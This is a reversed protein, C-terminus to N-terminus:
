PTPGPGQSGAPPVPGLTKSPGPPAFQAIDLDPMTPTRAKLRALDIMDTLDNANADRYTMAPLNWKREVMALISTHDRLSSSVGAPVAYPSLVMAPVRMGYRWFGDYTSQGPKVVPPIADPALAPPPAVHDYYGGHEDYTLILMTTPWQPSSFLADVIAYLYAEGASMDQPDEESQTGFNPDLLSFAPLKGARCDDFFTSKPTTPNSPFSSTSSGDMPEYHLQTVVADDLPYLEATTGLPYSATYDRWPIRLATLRDFITGNAPTALLGDQELTATPVGSSLSGASPVAIDDTMGASTAAILFRRNPDTQGLLSCFWRDAIPFTSALSYTFPLLSSDYYGMAVPGSPSVVFGNMAGKAYQMHSATWEQSPKGDLQGTGPMLFSFQLDAGPSASVPNAATVGYPNFATVFGSSCSLGDGRGLVGLINDYSHNELMLVVIQEIGDLAPDPTGPARTPFPLSDPQRLLRRGLADLAAQQAVGLSVTADVYDPRLSGRTVLGAAVAGAGGLLARRSFRRM